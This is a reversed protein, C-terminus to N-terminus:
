DNADTLQKQEETVKIQPINGVHLIQVTIVPKDQGDKKEITKGFKWEVWKVLLMASVAPYRKDTMLRCAIQELSESDKYGAALIRQEIRKAFGELIQGKENKSGFPRGM